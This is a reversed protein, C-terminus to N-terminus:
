CASGASSRGVCGHPLFKLYWEFGWWELVELRGTMGEAGKSNLTDCM